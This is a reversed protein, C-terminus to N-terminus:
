SSSNYKTPVPAICLDVGPIPMVGVEGGGFVRVGVMACDCAAKELGMWSETRGQENM